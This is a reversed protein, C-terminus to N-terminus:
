AVLDIESGRFSLTPRANGSPKEVHLDHGGITIVDIPDARNAPGPLGAATNLGLAQLDEDPLAGADILPLGSEENAVDANRVLQQTQSANLVLVSAAPITSTRM